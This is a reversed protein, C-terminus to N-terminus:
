WITIQIDRDEEKQVHENLTLHKQVLGREEKHTVMTVTHM